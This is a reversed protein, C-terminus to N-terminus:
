QLGDRRSLRVGATCQGTLRGDDALARVAAAGQTNGEHRLPVPAFEIANSRKRSAGHMVPDAGGTPARMKMEMLGSTLSTRGVRAANTSARRPSKSTAPERAPAWSMRFTVRGASRNELITGENECDLMEARSGITM